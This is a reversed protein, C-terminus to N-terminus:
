LFTVIRADFLLRKSQLKYSLTNLTVTAQSGNLFYTVRQVVTGGERLWHWTSSDCDRAVACADPTVVAVPLSDSCDRAVACADPTVVVVPLSCDRAEACADPTVVTSSLCRSVKSRRFAWILGCIPLTLYTMFIWNATFVFDIVNLLDNMFYETWIISSMSFNSCSPFAACFYLTPFRGVCWKGMVGPVYGLTPIRGAYWVDIVVPVYGLTPSTGSRLHLAKQQSSQRRWRVSVYSIVGLWHLSIRRFSHIPSQDGISLMVVVLIRDVYSFIVDAM